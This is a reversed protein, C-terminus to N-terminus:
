EGIVQSGEAPRRMAGPPPIGWMKSAIVDADRSIEYQISAARLALALGPRGALDM